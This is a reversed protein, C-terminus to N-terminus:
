IEGKRRQDLYEQLSFIKPQRKEKLAAAAPAVATVEVRGIRVVIDLGEESRNSVPSGIRRLPSRGQTLNMREIDGKAISPQRSSRDIVDGAESSRPRGPKPGTILWGGYYQEVLGRWENGGGPYEAAEIAQHSEGERPSAIPNDFAVDRGLDQPGGPDLDIRSEERLPGPLHVPRLDGGKTVPGEFSRIEISARHPRPEGRELDIEPEGSRDIPDKLPDMLARSGDMPDKPRDPAKAPSVAAPLHTEPHHSEPHHAKDGALAEAGDASMGASLDERVSARSVVPLKPATIREATAEDWGAVADGLSGTEEASPLADHILAPARGRRAPKRRDDGARRVREIQIGPAVSEEIADQEDGFSSIEAEREDDWPPAYISPVVPEIGRELGLARAALRDLFDSM